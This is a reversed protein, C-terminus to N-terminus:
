PAEQGDPENPHVASAVITVALITGIIALSIDTRIPYYHSLIM